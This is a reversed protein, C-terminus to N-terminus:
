QLSLMNTQYQTMEKLIGFV